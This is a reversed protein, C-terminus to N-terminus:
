YFNRHFVTPKICTSSQINLHHYHLESGWRTKAQHFLIIFTVVESSKLLDATEDPAVFDYNVCCGTPLGAVWVFGADQVHTCEFAILGNCCIMCAHMRGGRGFVGVLRTGLSSSKDTHKLLKRWYFISQLNYNCRNCHHLAALLWLHDASQVPNSCTWMCTLRRMLPWM